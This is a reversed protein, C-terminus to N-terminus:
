LSESITSTWNDEANAVDETLAEITKDWEEVV